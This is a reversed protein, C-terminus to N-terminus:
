AAAVSYAQGFQEPAPSDIAACIARLMDVAEPTPARGAVALLLRILQPKALPALQNLQRLALRVAFFDPNVMSKMITSGVDFQNLDLWDVEPLATVVSQLAARIQRQDFALQAMLQILLNVQTQLQSLKTYRVPVNRGAHTALRRDLVAQMVFETQTIKQDAAILQEVQIMLDLREQPALSKLAPSALDLLPMRLTLHDNKIISFLHQSQAALQSSWKNLLDLQANYATSQTDDLLLACVLARAGQPDHAADLLQAPIQQLGATHHGAHQGFGIETLSSTGIKSTATSAPVGTTSVSFDDTPVVYEMTGDAQLGAIPVAADTRDAAAQETIEGADLFSMSRGYLRQLREELPPHTAFLGSLLQPRAAGLFLHSFAEAQPHNIRSGCRNSRTLGGIKRLAGGIGAPNRTFQVASADALFERQRSVAAKILRGFFIGIYGVVFLVVGVLLFVAENSSRRSNRQDGFDGRGFFRLDIMGRGILALMQIGFLLGILKINLRMDGNLIHSFEHAVVGQLEERTLRHLTGRTVAVVAENQHYGAAFANIAQEADLIYVRPCAIGAALAMEEVINLLRREHFDSSAPSVLRGGVMQAVTDGGDKLRAMEFLTGGGIVLLTLLSSWFFFSAPLTRLTDFVGLANAYDPKSSVWALALVTDVIIVIALVALCFLIVLTRTQRRAHDQHEFFNM